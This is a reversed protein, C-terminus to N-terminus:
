SASPQEAAPEAAPEPAATEKRSSKTSSTSASKVSTATAASTPAPEADEKQSGSDKSEFRPHAVVALTPNTVKRGDEKLFGKKLFQEVARTEDLTLEVLPFGEDPRLRFRGIVLTSKTNNSIM